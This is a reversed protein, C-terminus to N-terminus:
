SIIVHCLELYTKKLTIAPDNEMPLAIGYKFETLVAMRTALFKYPIISLTGFISEYEFFPSFGIFTVPLISIRFTSKLYGDLGSTLTLKVRKFSYFLIGLM